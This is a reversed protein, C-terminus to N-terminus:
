VVVFCGNKMTRAHLGTNVFRKEDKGEEVCVVGPGRIWVEGGGDQGEEEEEGEEQDKGDFGKLLVEVNSSPGGTHVRGEAGGPSPAVTMEQHVTNKETALSARSSSTPTFTFEQPSVNHESHSHFIFPPLAQLDYFHSVFIPSTSLPSYTMRTLPLSLHLHSELLLSPSPSEGVVIVARLRNTLGGLATERVSKWHFKEFLGKRDIFGDGLDALKHRRALFYLPNKNAATQLTSNLSALQPTNLFLITPLPIPSPRALILLESHAIESDHAKEDEDEEDHDHHPAAGQGFSRFAAGSWITGLALTLGLPETLSLVSAVSDKSNPGPRKHAPFMSLIASIGATLSIHTIPTHRPAGKEDQGVVEVLVELEGVVRGGDEKEEVGDGVREIEKWGFAKLGNTKAMDVARQVEGEDEGVLVLTVGTAVASDDDEFLQELIIGLLAVPLVIIKPPIPLSLVHNLLRLSTPHVLRPLAFSSPSLAFSLTLLLSDFSDPLLNLVGGAASETPSSPDLGLLAVLGKAINKSRLKLLDNSIFTGYIYRTPCSLDLINAVTRLSNAPRLSLPSGHGTAWSRYIGSEGHNRTQSVDSQKGLLLPHVLPLPRSFYKLYVGLVITVLLLGLSLDTLLPQSSSM